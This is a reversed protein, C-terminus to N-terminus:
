DVVGIPADIADAILMWASPRELVEDVATEPISAFSTVKESGLVVRGVNIVEDIETEPVWASSPVTGSSLVVNGIDIGLM